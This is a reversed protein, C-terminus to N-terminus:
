NNAYFNRVREVIIDSVTFELNFMPQNRKIKAFDPDVMHTGANRFQFDVMFPDIYPTDKNIENFQISKEQILFPSEEQPRKINVSVYSDIIWPVYFRFVGPFCDEPKDLKTDSLYYQRMHPRDINYFEDIKNLLFIEAHNRQQLTITNGTIDLLVPAPYLNEVYFNIPKIISNAYNGDTLVTSFRLWRDKIRSRQNIYLFSKDPSNQWIYFDDAMMEQKDLFNEKNMVDGQQPPLYRDQSM